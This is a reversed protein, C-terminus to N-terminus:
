NSNLSSVAKQRRGVAEQRRGVAKQKKQVVIITVNPCM